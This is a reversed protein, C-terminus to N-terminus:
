PRRAVTIFHAKDPEEKNEGTTFGFERIINMLQGETQFSYSLLENTDQFQDKQVLTRHSYGNLRGSTKITSCRATPSSGRAPLDMRTTTIRIATFYIFYPSQTRCRVGEHASSSNRCAARMANRRGKVSLAYHFQLRTSKSNGFTNSHDQLYQKVEHACNVGAEHLM